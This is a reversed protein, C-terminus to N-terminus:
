VGLPDGGAQRGVARSYGLVFAGLCLGVIEAGNDRARVLSDLLAQPPRQNVEGWYPVVVIDAQELTAYDGSAYLAFGDRASLLGPREACIRLQFRKTDSVTDGFLMCPVSYHFPSFGDVAVIVVATLKM